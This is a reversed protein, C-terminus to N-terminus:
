APLIKGAIWSVSKRFQADGGANNDDEPYVEVTKECLLHNFLGFVCEAPAETDRLGSVAM